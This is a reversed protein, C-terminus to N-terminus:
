DFLKKDGGKKGDVPITIFKQSGTGPRYSKSVGMVDYMADEYEQSGVGKGFFGQQIANYLGIFPDVQVGLSLELLPVVSKEYWKADDDKWVKAVKFAASLFPNTVDSLRPNRDMMYGVGYQAATGILPVNYLLNLGVMAEGIRYFFEKRDDDDGRTLMFFNSVGVFAANVISLNLYFARYDAATPGAKMAEKYMKKAQKLNKANKIEVLLKAQRGYARKINTTAQFVKNMMLFLSSGFMTFARSSWHGNLQLGIKETNRRTQQTANYDNFAELAQAESMGNAINRKYNVYYGMVGMIDGIITPRSSISKFVRQLRRFLGSKKSAPKFTLSGSELGYVDGELGEIMRQDFQASMKRAKSIAGNMGVLDPAMQALVLASDLTFMVLDIPLAVLRPAKKGKPLYSYKEFANIFSIAQKPIQIFKFALAWSTFRRQMKVIFDNVIGGTERAAANPNVSATILRMMLPKIGSEDLVTSVEPINLFDRMQKVGIAAAKYREMNEFHNEMTETFNGGLLDVEGKKDTREKFAPSTEASFIKAFEGGEILAKGQKEATITRTPFYNAVYGLSVGNVQRYVANVENFYETSMFEVMRDAFEILNPGLEERFDDLMKQDVGQAELKERQAENKSLAHLRMMQNANFLISYPKGTNRNKVTYKKTNPKGTTKNYGLAKNIAVEVGQMGTEFGSVEAIQDKKKNMIRVNQLASEEILNLRRYINDTFLTLGLAKRDLFNTITGLHSLTDVLTGLNMAELIPQFVKPIIGRKRFEARTEDAQANRENKNKPTGDQNFLEPNTEQIQKKAKEELAKRDAAMLETRANFNKIGEAKLSKIEDLLARVEELTMNEINGFNDFAKQLQFFQEEISTLEENNSNKEIATAVVDSNEDLKKIIADIAKQREEPKAKNVAKLVELINQFAIQTIDDVGKARRKGSQTRTKAKARVIKAIERVAERKAIARQEEIVKDIAMIKAPYNDTTLEIALKLLNNLKRRSYKTGKPLNERIYNKVLIQTDKLNTAGVRRNLLAQRTETREKELTQNSRYGLYSDYGYRLEMQIQETQEKYVPHAKILDQAKQRIASYSQVRNGKRDTAFKQLAISVDKYMEAAKKIGGVVKKFAVPMTREDTVKYMFQEDIKYVLANNIEERNYGEQLLIQFLAADSLGLDTRGKEIIQEMSMDSKFAVEPNKLKKMQNDSLKVAKGSFIDALASGLFEDLTLNQIQEATLESTQTFQSKIYKWMGLVWETFKSKVAADTITQGKNGILIAMTENAAKAEDGDFKKLQKKYEETQKVLEIGKAYIQKGKKTVQLYNTWVHGMEHIATNHLSSESNHAQPNIYVDGDVTVGYITQNGKKFQRVDEREMVTDFTAQTTSINTQPFSLNMFATLKAVNDMNGQSVAGIFELAPMGIGVGLVQTLITGVSSPALDGVEGLAAREALPTRRILSETVKKAQNELKTLETMANQYGIPFASVVSVPNELIGITKGKTGKPYNPHNTDIVAEERSVGIDVAQIAIINRQPVNKLQPETILDTIEGLHFLKASEKLDMGNLLALVTPKKPKGPTVKTGPKNPSGYTMRELLDKRAPLSLSKIFDESFIDDISTAGSDEILKLAKSLNDIKKLYNVVTLDAKGPENALVAYRTINTKLSSKLVELARVRNQEPVAKLNDAMVRFTAENSLISTEGMKVVPMPVHNRFEPNKAWFEEFIEKNAEYARKAKDYLMGAEAATTNAWAANENGVTGTFGLGGRLDRIVRGTAPNVIDGTRLQDSITFVVPIGNIIDLNTITRIPNDTRENLEVGDITAESKTEDLNTATNGSELENMKATAEAVEDFDPTFEAESKFEIESIGLPKTIATEARALRRRLDNFAKKSQAYKSEFAEIGQEANAKQSASLYQELEPNDALIKQLEEVMNQKDNDSVDKKQGLTQAETIKYRLKAIAIAKNKQVQQEATLKAKTAKKVQKETKKRKAEAAALRKKAREIAAQTRRENETMPKAPAEETVPAAEEVPAVEETVAVETAPAAEQTVIPAGEGYDYTPNKVEAQAEAKTRLSVISGTKKNEVYWRGSGDEDIELDAKGERNDIIEFDQKREKVTEPLTYTETAAEETVATEEAVPTVEETVPAAEETVATETVPAAETTPSIPELGLGERGEAVEEQLTRLSVIEDVRAKNENLVTNEFDNLVEDNAEKDLVFSIIGDLRETELENNKFAARDKATHKIPEPVNVRETVADAVEAAAETVDAEPAAEVEAAVEADEDLNEIVADTFKETLLELTQLDGSLGIKSERIDKPSMDNLISLFKQRTHKKGDIVYVAQKSERVDTSSTPREALLGLRSLNTQFGQEFTQNVETGKKRVTNTEALEALEANVEKLTGSFVERRNQSSQIENKAALLEMARNLVPAPAKKRGVELVSKAENRLGINEQIRQNQDSSIYGLREMNNSWAAVRKPSPAFVGSLEKNVGEITTLENAIDLNNKARLDLATNLAAMPANNGLGGIMEAMIEKIDVDDGVNVQALYEGAGEMLPDFVVREGTQVAIRAGRASTKGTTFVRGALGSSLYDVVAIPIGRKLGRERGIEWIKDDQLAKAVSNADTVDYGQTQMAEMVANTYELGFNTAAFGTRAGYGLGSLGGALTGAGPVFSGAASGTAFGAAMFSPIIKMGYPLMQSMSNAALGLALKGPNDSFADWTERFGKARNWRNMERSVQGTNGQNMYEVLNKAVEETSDGTIGLSYKIIEDGAQGRNYGETWQQGVTSWGEIFRGSLNEDFKSDLYTNAVEYKNSAMTKFDQIFMYSTELVEKAERQADTTPEFNKVESIPVGLSTMSSENLGAEVILANNNQSISEQSLREVKKQTYVDFDEVVKQIDSDLYTDALGDVTRQLSAKVDDIDNRLQGTRPDYFDSIYDDYQKREEDTFDSIKFRTDEFGSQVKDIFAVRDRSDEYQEFQDKITLYDYGRNDFYRDAEADVTNINKWSGKAFQSAEDETEFTFVEGRKLAENYAEMGELEMWDKSNYTMDYIDTTKPFLTPFAVNKGDITASQMLVTSSTGDENLRSVPRMKKVRLAAQVPNSDMLERAESPKYAYRKVFDKVKDANVQAIDNYSADVNIRETKVNGDSLLISVELQNKVLNVPRFTFGYQGYLDNFYDAAEAEKMKIPEVTTQSLADAFASSELVEERGELAESIIQQQEARDAAQQQVLYKGEVEQLLKLYAQDALQQKNFREAAEREERGPFISIKLDKTASAEYGAERPDQPTIGYIREVTQKAVEVEQQRPSLYDDPMDVTAAADPAAVFETPQAMAVEQAKDIASQVLSKDEEEGGFVAERREQPTMEPERSGFVAERKQEPTLEPTPETEQLDSSSPQEESTSASATAVAEDMQQQFFGKKKSDEVVGGFGVLTNFEEKSKAYGEGQALGYMTNVADSNQSMLVKFEDFSKNFGEGQSIGYLVRLAEENM